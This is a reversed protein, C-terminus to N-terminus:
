NLSCFIIEKRGCYNYNSLEGGRVGGCPILGFAGHLALGGGPSAIQHLKTHCAPTAIDKIWLGSQFKRKIAM